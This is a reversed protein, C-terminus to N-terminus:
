HRDMPWVEHWLQRWGKRWSWQGQWCRAAATIMSVDHWPPGRHRQRHLQGLDQQFRRRIRHRWLSAFCGFFGPLPWLTRFKPEVSTKKKPPLLNKKNTNRPKTSNTNTTTTTTTTTTTATTATTLIVTLTLIHSVDLYNLVFAFEFRYPLTMCKSQADKIFEVPYLLICIANAAWFTMSGCEPSHHTVTTTGIDLTTQGHSTNKHTSRIYSIEHNVYLKM